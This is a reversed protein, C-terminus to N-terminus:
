SEVALRGNLLLLVGQSLRTWLRQDSPSCAITPHRGSRATKLTTTTQRQRSSAVASASKSRMANAVRLEYQISERYPESLTHCQTHLALIHMPQTHVPLTDFEFMIYETTKRCNRQPIIDVTGDVRQTATDRHIALQHHSPSSQSARQRYCQTIFPPSLYACLRCFLPLFTISADDKKSPNASLYPTSHVNRQTHILLADTMPKCVSRLFFLRM